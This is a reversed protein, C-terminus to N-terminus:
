KNCHNFSQNISPNLTTCHNFSQTSYLSQNISNIKLNPITLKPYKKKEIPPYQNPYKEFHQLLSPHAKVLKEAAEDTLNDNTLTDGGFTTQLSRGPKLLYKKAPYTMISLNNQTSNQQQLYVQKQIRYYAKQYCKGCGTKIDENFLQHYVQTLMAIAQPQRQAIQPYSQLVQTLQPNM